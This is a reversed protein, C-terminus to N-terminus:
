NLQAEFKEGLLELFEDLVKEDVRAGAAVRHGGGEVGKLEVSIEKLAKGINLGRRVLSSTGRGSVKITGDPNKALAIIPKDEQIVSGYLMGAIIGVISEEIATGADFFYFYKKDQVGNREVFQIGERLAARHQELMALAEGYVGKLDRDGLCVKLGLEYKQHRGCSNMLTGFEKADRLPSKPGENVLTYTEGILERLKWEPFNYNQLHLFLASILRKKQEQTLDEYSLFANTFSDRTPINNQALFSVCGEESATLGPLIPSSSYLLFSVLPRSIRGYLRLDKKVLILKEQSAIELIKKNLGILEGHYEQMDGVAGVIALPALDVNKKNLEQAFLFALGAGSIEKGGDIGFLLPNFHWKHELIKGEVTVPQHHDLVFFNESFAEILYDLQGSGFDVFLFNKGLARIEDINEKYLQKLCKSSVKKGERELAKITIAGATLGDADYHHVVVFDDRLKVDKVIEKLKLYFAEEDRPINRTAEHM